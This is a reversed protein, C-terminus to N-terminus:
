KLDGKREWRFGDKIAIYATLLIIILRIYWRFKISVAMGMLVFLLNWSARSWEKLSKMKRLRTVKM